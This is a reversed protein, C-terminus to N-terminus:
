IWIVHWLAIKWFRLLFLLFLGTGIRWKVM